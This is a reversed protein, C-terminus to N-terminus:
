WLFPILRRTKARYVPYEDPFWRELATEEIRIRYILAPIGSAIACALGAISGFTLPFGVLLCLYALYAPHRILRYIGTTVLRHNETTQVHGSFQKGLALRSVIRVLFGVLLLPIGAYRASSLHSGITTWNFVTADLFSFVIAGYFTVGHWHASLTEREIPRGQRLGVVHFLREVVVWLILAATGILVPLSDIRFSFETEPM